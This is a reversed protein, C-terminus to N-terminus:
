IHKKVFSHALIDKLNPRKSEDKEVMQSIIWQM